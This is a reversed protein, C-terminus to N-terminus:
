LQQRWLCALMRAQIRFRSAAAVTSYAGSRTEFVLRNDEESSDPSSCEFSEESTGFSAASQIEGSALVRLEGHEDSLSDYDRLRDLDVVM